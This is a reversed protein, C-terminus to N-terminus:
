PRGRGLVITGRKSLAGEGWRSSLIVTTPLFQCVLVKWINHAQLFRGNKKGGMAFMLLVVCVCALSVGVVLRVEPTFESVCGGVWSLLGLISAQGSSAM